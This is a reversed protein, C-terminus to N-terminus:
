KQNNWLVASNFSLFRSPISSKFRIATAELKYGAQHLQLCILDIGKQNDSALQLKKNVLCGLGTDPFTSIQQFHTLFEDWLNSHMVVHTFGNLLILEYLENKYIFNNEETLLPLHTEIAALIMHKHPTVLLYLLSNLKNTLILTNYILTDQAESFELIARQCIFSKFNCLSQSWARMLSCWSEVLSHETDPLCKLITCLTSYHNDTTSLQLLHTILEIQNTRLELETNTVDYDWWLDIQSKIKLKIICWDTGIVDASSSYQFLQSVFSKIDPSYDPSNIIHLLLKSLMDLTITDSPLSEFLTKIIKYAPYSTISNSSQTETSCKEQLETSLSIITDHFTNALDFVQPTISTAATLIQEIFPVPTGSRLYNSLIGSVTEPDSRSIFFENRLETLQFSQIAPSLYVHMHKSYLSVKPLVERKITNDSIQNIATCIYQFKLQLQTPNLSLGTNSFLVEEFLKLIHNIPLHNMATILSLNDVEIDDLSPNYSDVFQSCLAFYLDNETISGGPPLTVSLPGVKSLIPINKFTLHEKLIDIPNSSNSYEKFDLLPVTQFLVTLLSILEVCSMLCNAIFYIPRGIVSECRGLLEICALLQDYHTGIIRPYIDKHLSEAFINPHDSLCDVIGKEIFLDQMHQLRLDSHTLIVTLFEVFLTERDINHHGAIALAFDLTDSSHALKRIVVNQYNIDALYFDYDFESLKGQSLFDAEWLAQLQYISNKFELMLSNNSHQAHEFNHVMIGPPILLLDRIENQEMEQSSILLALYYIYLELTLRQQPLEQLINCTNDNNCITLMYGITLTSDSYINARMCSTLYSNLSTLYSSDEFLEQITANEQVLTYFRFLETQSAILHTFLSFKTHSNYFSHKKISLQMSSNSNDIENNNQTFGTLYSLKNLGTTRFAKGMIRSVKNIVQVGTSTSTAVELLQNTLRTSSSLVNELRDIPCHEMAYGLLNKRSSLNSFSDVAGLKHCIAWANAYNSRILVYCYDECSRWDEFSYAKEALFIQIEFCDINGDGGLTTQIRLLTLLKELKKKSRYNEHRANIVDRLLMVNNVCARLQAPLIEFKLDDFLSLIAILNLEEQLIEIPPQMLQLCSRALQMHEDMFHSSANFYHQSAHLVVNVSEEYTLYCNWIDNSYTENSLRNVGSPDLRILSAALRIGEQCQSTMLAQSFLAYCTNRELQPFVTEKLSLIDILLQEWLKQPPFVRQNALKHALRLILLRVEQEEEKQHDLIENPCLFISYNQLISASKLIMELQKLQTSIEGNSRPICEFISFANALQAPSQCSYICDIALTTMSVTDLICFKDVFCTQFLVQCLPLNDQATELMFGRMLGLKDGEKCKETFDLIPKIYKMFRDFFNTVVVGELIVRIRQLSSLEEVESLGILSSSNSSLDEVLTKLFWLDHQVQLLNPVNKAIGYEVLWTANQYQGSINDIQRARYVFWDTVVETDTPLSNRFRVLGSHSAYFESDGIDDHFTDSYGTAESQARLIPILTKYNSPHEIEPIFILIALFHPSLQSYFREYLVQIAIYDRDIALLSLLQLLPTLCMKRFMVTEFKIYSKTHLISSYCDLMTMMRLIVTNQYEYGNQISDSDERVSGQIRSLGLEISKRTSEIDPSQVLLIQDLVYNTDTIRSLYLNVSDLSYSSSEWQNQYLLNIDLTFENALLLAESYLQQSIKHKYLDLASVQKLLMIRYDCAFESVEFQQLSLIRTLSFLFQFIREKITMTNKNSYGGTEKYCVALISKNGYFTDMILPTDIGRDQKVINREHELEYIALRGTSYSAAIHHESWWCCSVLTETVPRTRDPQIRRYPTLSPTYWVALTGNQHSTLLRQPKNSSLSMNIVDNSRRSVSTSRVELNHHVQEFGNDQDVVRWVSITSKLVDTNSETRVVGSGGVYLLETDSQYCMSSVGQPHVHRLGVQYCVGGIEGSNRVDFWYLSGTRCVIICRHILQHPGYGMLLLHSPDMIGHVSLDLDGIKNGKTDFVMVLSNISTALLVMLYKSDISWTVQLPSSRTIIVDDSLTYMYGSQRSFVSHNSPSLKSNRILIFLTSPSLVALHKHCPSASLSVSPPPTTHKLKSRYYMQNPISFILIIPILIYYSIIHIYRIFTNSPHTWRSSKTHFLYTDRWQDYQIADYLIKDNTSM